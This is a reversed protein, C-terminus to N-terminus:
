INVQEVGSLRPTAAAAQYAQIAALHEGAAALADGRFEQVLSDILGPRLDLYAQYAEAAGRYNGLEEYVQALAYQVNARSASEPFLDLHTRLIERANLTRGMAHYTRGVGLLGASITLALLAFVLKWKM